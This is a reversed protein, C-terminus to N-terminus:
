TDIKFLFGFQLSYSLIELKRLRRLRRLAAVIREALAAVCDETMFLLLPTPPPVLPPPLEALEATGVSFFPLPHTQQM